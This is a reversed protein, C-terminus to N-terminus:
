IRLRCLIFRDLDLFSNLRVADRVCLRLTGRIDGIRPPIRAHRAVVRQLRKARRTTTDHEARRLAERIPRDLERAALADTAPQLPRSLPGDPDHMLRRRVLLIAEHRQGILVLVQRITARQYYLVKLLEHLTEALPLTGAHPEEVAPFIATKLLSRM